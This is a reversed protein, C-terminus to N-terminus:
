AALVAPPCLRVDVTTDGAAAGRAAFGIRPNGTATTTVNKAASNWYLPAGFSVAGATKPLSWVGEVNLETESGEPADYAAVGFCTGILVGEGSVVGGAPATATVVNGLQRFNRAM